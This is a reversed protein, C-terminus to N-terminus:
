VGVSEKELALATKCVSHWGCCYEKNNPCEKPDDDGVPLFEGYFAFLMTIARDAMNYYTEKWPSSYKNWENWDLVKECDWDQSYLACAIHERINHNQIM